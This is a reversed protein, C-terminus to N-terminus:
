NPCNHHKKPALSVSPPIMLVVCCNEYKNLDIHSFHTSIIILIVLINCAQMNIELEEYVLLKLTKNVNGLKHLFKSMSNVFISPITIILRLMNLLNTIVKNCILKPSM